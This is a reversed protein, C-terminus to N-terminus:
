NSKFIITITCKLNDSHLAKPPINSIGAERRETEFTLCETVIHKIRLPVGCSTCLISTPGEEDYVPTNDFHTGIRLINISTRIKRTIDPLSPWLHTTNKIKNFKISNPQDKLEHGYIGNWITKIISKAYHFTFCNCTGYYKYPV